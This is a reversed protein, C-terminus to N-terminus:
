LAGRIIRGAYAQAEAACDDCVDMQDFLRKTSPKGCCMCVATGSAPSGQPPVLNDIEGAGPATPPAAALRELTALSVLHAQDALETKFAPHLSALRRQDSLWQAFGDCCNEKFDAMGPTSADIFDLGAVLELVKTLGLRIKEDDELFRQLDDETELRNNSPYQVLTKLVLDLPRMFGDLEGSGALAFVRTLISM